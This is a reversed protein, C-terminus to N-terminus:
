IHVRQHPYSVTKSLPIVDEMVTIEVDLVEWTSSSGPYEAEVKGTIQLSLSYQGAERPLFELLTVTGQHGGTSHEGLITETGSHHSGLWAVFPELSRKETHVVRNLSDKLTLTFPTGVLFAIKEFFYRPSYQVRYAEASKLSLLVRCWKGSTSITIPNEFVFNGEHRKPFFRGITRGSSLQRRQSIFRYVAVIVLLSIVGLVVIIGMSDDM